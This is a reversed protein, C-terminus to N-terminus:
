EGEYELNLILTEMPESTDTDPLLEVMYLEFSCELVTDIVESDVTDIPIFFGEKVELDDLFATEIIDQIKANEIKYKRLDSAFFYVRVTLNKERCQSNFLGNASNEIKVKISPRKIPESLDEAKIPVASFTTGILAAKIKDDIAKNIELITVM